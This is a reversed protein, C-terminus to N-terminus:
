GILSLNGRTIAMSLDDPFTKFKSLDLIKDKPLTLSYLESFLTEGPNTQSQSSFEKHSSISIPCTCSM